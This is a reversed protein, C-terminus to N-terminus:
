VYVETYKLVIFCSDFSKKWDFHYYWQVLCMHRPFYAQGGEQANQRQGVM